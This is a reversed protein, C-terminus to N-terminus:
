IIKYKFEFKNELEVVFNVMELSDLQGSKLLDLNTEVNILKKENKVIKIIKVGMNIKTNITHKISDLCGIKM